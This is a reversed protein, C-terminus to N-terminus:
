DRPFRRPGNKGIDWRAPESKGLRGTPSVQQEQKRMNAAAQKFEESDNEDVLAECVVLHLARSPVDKKCYPCDEMTEDDKRAAEKRYALLETAILHEERVSIGRIAGKYFVRGDAEFVARRTLEELRENTIIM